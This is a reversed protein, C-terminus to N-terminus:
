DQEVIACVEVKELVDKPKIRTKFFLVEGPIDRFDETSCNLQDSVAIIMNPMAARKLKWLKKQLYDPTWFGVIEMLARRGDPHVFAFDPIMVTDKLDIIDTERELTWETDIKDFQTAFHRELESDFEDPDRYHSQLESEENLEFRLHDNRNMVITADLWWRDCHLLAPLFLAMQIGYKQSLRFMSAPGDLVIQYGDANNGSVVHMLKFFKIFQFVLRYKTPINRYIRITMESARYLMAQALAVNYRDLLWEVTPPEFGTLIRNEELDAYMGEIVAESSVDLEGAIKELAKPRARRHLRDTRTVVPHHKGAYAFIKERLVEPEIPSQITFESRDELLKALGRTVHYTTDAAEYDALASALSGRTKNLHAGYIEILDRAIARYKRNKPNVYRASIEDEKIRYRLLDLTLM